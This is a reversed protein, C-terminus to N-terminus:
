LIEVFEKICGDLLLTYCDERQTHAPSPSMSRIFLFFPTPSFHTFKPHWNIFPLTAKKNSKRQIVQELPLWNGNTLACLLTISFEISQSVLPEQWCSHLIMHFLVREGLWTKLFSCGESIALSCNGSLSQALVSALLEAERDVLAVIFRPVSNQTFYFLITKNSQWAFPAM